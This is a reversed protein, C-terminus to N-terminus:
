EGRENRMLCERLQWKRCVIGEPLPLARADASIEGPREPDPDFLRSLALIRERERHLRIKEPQIAM